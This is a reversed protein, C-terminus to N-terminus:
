IAFSEITRKGIGLMFYTEIAISKTDGALGVVIAGDGCDMVYAVKQVPGFDGQQISKALEILQEPISKSEPTNRFKCTLIKLDKKDM